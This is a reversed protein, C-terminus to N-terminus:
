LDVLVVGGCDTQPETFANYGDNRRYSIWDGAANVDNMVFLDTNIYPYLSDYMNTADTLPGSQCYSIGTGTFKPIVGDGVGLVGFTTLNKTGYASIFNETVAGSNLFVRRFSNPGVTFSERAIVSISRPTRGSILHPANKTIALSRGNSAGGGQWAVECCLGIIPNAQSSLDFNFMKPIRDSSAGFINGDFTQYLNTDLPDIAPRTAYTVTYPDYDPSTMLTITAKFTCGADSNRQFLLPIALNRAEGV